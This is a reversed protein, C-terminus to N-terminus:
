RSPSRTRAVLRARIGAPNHRTELETRALDRNKRRQDLYTEVESQHALYYGITQYVDRLSLADFNRAIEEPTEGRHFAAVLADLTVRTSGVRIAGGQDARVPPAEPSIAPLPTSVTGESM